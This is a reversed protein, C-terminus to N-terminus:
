PQDGHRRERRQGSAARRSATRPATYEAPADGGDRASISSSRARPGSRRVSMDRVYVDISGNTDAPALQQATSFAVFRGDASMSPERAGQRLLVNTEEDFFDGDAVLELGQTELDFRFIGGVRYQGAPDPDDDAFLNRARTQVAVYRGDACVASAFTTTDDGQELRQSRRRCSRRARATTRRRGGPLVLGLVAAAAAIAPRRTM